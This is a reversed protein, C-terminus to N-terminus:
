EYLFMILVIIEPKKELWDFNNDLGFGERECVSKLLRKLFSYDPRDDFRLDRTFHLFVQFEELFLFYGVLVVKAYYNLRHRYKKRWLKKM